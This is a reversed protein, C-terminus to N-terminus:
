TQVGSMFFCACTTRKMNGKSWSNKLVDTEDVTSPLTRGSPAATTEASLRFADISHVHDAGTKGGSSVASAIIAVNEIEPTYEVGRAIIL